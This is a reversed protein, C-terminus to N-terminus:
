SEFRFTRPELGPRFAKKKKEKNTDGTVIFSLFYFFHIILQNYKNAFALIM